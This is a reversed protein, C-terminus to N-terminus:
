RNLRKVGWFFLLLGLLTPLVGLLGGGVAMYLLDESSEEALSAIMGIFIFLSLLGGGLTLLGGGLVLFWSLTSPPQADKKELEVAMAEALEPSPLDVFMGADGAAAPAVSPSDVLPRSGDVGELTPLEVTRDLADEALQEARLRQIVRLVWIIQGLVIGPALPMLLLVVCGTASATPDEIPAAALLPWNYLGHLVIPIVIAKRLLTPRGVATFKAQGVYYGMIAGLFAHCPVSLIARAIAVEMGGQAVYLVNELTAFGLSATAGYVIGDMPEDFEMHRASYYWLVVFKFIEEPIAAGLFASAFGYLLPNQFKEALADLPLAVAVVPAVIAIGLFFTTWLVRPPERYIDRRHFYFVLLLGPIIASAGLLISTM